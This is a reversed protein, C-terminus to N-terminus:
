TTRPVWIARGRGGAGLGNSSQLVKYYQWAAMGCWESGEIFIELAGSFKSGFAVRSPLITHSHSAVLAASVFFLLLSRRMNSVRQM